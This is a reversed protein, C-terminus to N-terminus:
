PCVSLVLPMGVPLPVHIPVYLDVCECRCMICYEGDDTSLDKSYPSPSGWPSESQVAWIPPPPKYFGPYLCVAEGCAASGHIFVGSGGGSVTSTATRLEFTRRGPRMVLECALAVVNDDANDMRMSWRDEGRDQETRAFHRAPTCAALLRTVVAGIAAASNWRAVDAGNRSARGTHQAVHRSVRVPVRRHM